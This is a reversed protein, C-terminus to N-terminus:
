FRDNYAVRIRKKKSLVENGSPPEDSGSRSMGGSLCSIGRVFILNSRKLWWTMGFCVMLIEFCCCRLMSIRSESNLLCKSKEDLRIFIKM